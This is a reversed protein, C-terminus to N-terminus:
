PSIDRPFFAGAFAASANRPMDKNNKSSLAVTHKFIGNKTLPPYRDNKDSRYKSM